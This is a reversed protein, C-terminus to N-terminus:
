PSILLGPCLQHPQANASFGVVNLQPKDNMQSSITFYCLTRLHHSTVLRDGPTSLEPAAGTLQAGSVRGAVVVVM